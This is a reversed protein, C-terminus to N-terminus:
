GPPCRRRLVVTASAGYVDGSRQNASVMTRLPEHHGSQTAHSALREPAGTEGGDRPLGM